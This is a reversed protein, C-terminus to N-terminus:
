VLNEVRRRLEQQRKVQQESLLQQRQQADKEKKLKMQRQQKQQKEHRQKEYELFRMREAKWTETKKNEDAEHKARGNKINQRALATMEDITHDDREKALTQADKTIDYGVKGLVAVALSGSGLGIATAKDMTQNDEWQKAYETKEHGEGDVGYNVGFLGVFNDYTTGPKMQCLGCMLRKTNGRDFDVRPFLRTVARYEDVTIPQGTTSGPVPSWYPGAFDAEIAMQALAIEPAAHRAISPTTHLAIAMWLREIRTEDWSGRDVHSRLFDKAINAGDIEFRNEVTLGNLETSTAIVLGMDHFICMLMVAEMDLSALDFSPLKTALIRAWYASRAVHNFLGQPLHKQAFALASTAIRSPPFDLQLEPIDSLIQPRSM